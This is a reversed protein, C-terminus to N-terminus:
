GIASAAAIATSAARWCAVVDVDTSSIQKTQKLVRSRATYSDSSEPAPAAHDIQLGRVCGASPASKSVVVGVLATTEFSPTEADRDIAFVAIPAANTQIRVIINM